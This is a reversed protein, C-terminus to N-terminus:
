ECKEERMLFSLIYRLAEQEWRHSNFTHDAGEIIHVDTNKGYALDRYEESVKPPVALDKSGHILLVNGKYRGAHPYTDLTKLDEAFARGVLNGGHDYIAQKESVHLESTQQVIVKMWDGAPAMLVLRYVDDPRSGAVLSAVLGGMSLGLLSTKEPDVRSDKKVFDLIENAEVIESSLTMEEFNGDSEGSGLFDFRFSAIGNAELIRSIKLFMRHPELRNGTFGHFLIVAPFGEGEDPVHEMGRLTKGQHKIEIAKQM